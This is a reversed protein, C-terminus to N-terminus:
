EGGKLARIEGMKLGFEKISLDIAGANIAQKHKNATLIM